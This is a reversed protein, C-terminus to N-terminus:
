GTAASRVQRAVERTSRAFDLVSHAVQSTVNRLTARNLDAPRSLSPGLALGLSVV